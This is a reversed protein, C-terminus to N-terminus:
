YDNIRDCLRELKEFIEEATATWIFPNCDENYKEKFEEIKEVLEKVSRFSGRRIAKDTIIAFWREVQNLWSSYTPTFHFHFRPNRLLWEKVKPHKHTCYNDLIIHADLEKPVSKKVQNLFKIFDKHTHSSKCSTEVTGTAVDLAAFLTTTGHRYYNDTVSESYGFGMPLQPQTRELAQCQSKEDVCLVVANEPPSLYLAVVDIVKDVFFPDNSLKFKDQRHPKLSFTNWVRNITSKSIGTEKEMSRTSWHTEGKPKSDLTKKLLEAIQEESYTRPRGTRYSDSLGEIRNERFRKKWKSICSVSLSLTEAVERDMKGEASLLIAKARKVLTNPLSRSVAWQKLVDLEDPLIEILETKRGSRQKDLLGTVGGQLYRGRWKVVVQRSIGLKKAIASDLLGDLSLLIIQARVALRKNNGSALLKLEYQITKTEKFYEKLTKKNSM